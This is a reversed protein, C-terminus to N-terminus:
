LASPLSDGAGTPDVLEVALAKEHLVQGAEDLTVAGEAGLTIVPHCGVERFLGYGRWRIQVLFGVAEIENCFLLDARQLMERLAVQKGIPEVHPWGCTMSIM